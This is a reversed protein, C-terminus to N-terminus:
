LGHSHVTVNKFPTKELIVFGSSSTWGNRVAYNNPSCVAPIQISKFKITNEIIKEDHRHATLMVNFCSQDGYELVMQNADKKSIRKDGHTCIYQIGDHNSTLLLPDFNTDIGKGLRELMGSILYAVQGEKDDQNSSSIRDHNGGVIEVDVFHE